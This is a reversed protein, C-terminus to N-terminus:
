YISNDYFKWKEMTQRLSEIQQSIQQIDNPIGSVDISNNFIQISTDSLKNSLEVIKNSLNDLVYNQQNNITILSTIQLQQQGILELIGNIKENMINQNNFINEINTSINQIEQEM